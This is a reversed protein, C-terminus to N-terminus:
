DGLEAPRDPGAAYQSWSGVYLRGGGCGLQEAVLLDHCATVGSGCSVVFSRGPEIGVAAFRARLVSEPLLRGDDGTNERAPLSRAGPIHGPRPDLPNPPGDGRFRDAPRADVLPVEGSRGAHRAEDLAALAAAPWPRPTFAAAAWSPGPGAELVRGTLDGDLLAAREGLTRLMWVLRAAIVGGAGDCAVVVTGDGIGLRSMAAAFAAPDPLPHRGEAPSPAAALDRDLDVFRAAPLHGAEFGARDAGHEASWRVDCVVAGAPVDDVFPKM